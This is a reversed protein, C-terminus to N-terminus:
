NNARHNLLLFGDDKVHSCESGAVPMSLSGALYRYFSSFVFCSKL